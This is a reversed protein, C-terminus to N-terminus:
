KQVANAVIAPTLIQPLIEPAPRNGTTPDRPGYFVYLPVGKRGHSELFKTIEPNQNTWDGQLPTINQAAFLPTARQKVRDIGYMLSALRTSM